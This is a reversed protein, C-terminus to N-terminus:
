KQIGIINIARKMNYALFSLGLELAVKEKGRCLLYHAVHYWKVTGFLHESLYMRLKMKPIDKIDSNIIRSSMESVRYEINDFTETSLDKKHEILNFQPTILANLIPRTHFIGLDIISSNITSLVLFLYNELNYIIVYAWHSINDNGTTLKNIKEM